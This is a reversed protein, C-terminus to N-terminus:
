EKSNITNLVQECWRNDTELMMVGYELAAIWYQTGPEDSQNENVHRIKQKLDHIGQNNDDIRRLLHQKDYQNDILYGYCLKLLSEDRLSTPKAPSALWEQLAHMGPETITYVKAKRNNRMTLTEECFGQKMLKQLTPYIQGESEAWMTTSLDNIKKYIDNATMPKGHALHILIIFQTRSRHKM